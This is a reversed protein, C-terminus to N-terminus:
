TSAGTDSASNFNTAALRCGLLCASLCLGGMMLTRWGVYLSDSAGLCGCTVDLGRRLTIAQAAVFVVFLVAGLFYASGAWWRVLLCVGLAVQLFPLFMALAQGARMGVLQYGYISSLFYYPNGLHAFASRFMVLALAVALGREV